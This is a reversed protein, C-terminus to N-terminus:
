WLSNSVAVANLLGYAAWSDFFVCRTHCGHGGCTVQVHGFCQDKTISLQTSDNRGGESLGRTTGLRPRAGSLAAAVPGCNRRDAPEWQVEGGRAGQLNPSFLHISRICCRQYLSSGPPM